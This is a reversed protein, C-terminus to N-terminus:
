FLDADKAAMAAQTRNQVGLKRFMMKMHLKVTPTQIGLERAIEKDSRGICVHELVQLERRTLLQTMPHQEVASREGLLDISVFKEGMAMFRIANALSQAPMSKSLFGVAGLESVEEAKQRVSLGSILAVRVGEAIALKLGNLGEMGPMRLDLLVLDFPGNQRWCQAAEELNSVPTVDMDEEQRLYLVLTDRLLEHDDAFLVRLRQTAIM